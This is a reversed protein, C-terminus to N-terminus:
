RMVIPVAQRAMTGGRLRAIVEVHYDGPGIDQLVLNTQWTAERERTSGAAGTITKETRRIIREGAKIAATVTLADGDRARWFFRSALQLVDSATFTRSATPEVLLVEAIRSAEVSPKRGDLGVLLGTMALRDRGLNPITVPVHVTGTKGLARSAIGVRIIAPGPPLEVVEHVLFRRETADAGDIQLDRTVTALIRADPDVAVLKFAAEDTVRDSPGGGTPYLVETTVVTRVRGKQGPAVPAAFARMPVGFVALGRELDLDLAPKQVAPDGPPRPAVYGQRARVKLGPRKVRVEISHFKGDHVPPDPYYGLLYISGNDEVFERAAAAVSSREVAARGGTNIALTYLFDKQGRQAGIDEFGSITLLGRPDITYVAVNARRATEFVHILDQLVGTSLAAEGLYVLVRRAHASAALSRSVNELVFFSSRSNHIADLGTISKNGLGAKLRDLAKVQTALDSTFDQSLDSRSTYVVALQDSDSLSEMFSTLIQKMRHLKEADLHIHLDDIVIVFARGDPEPENTFTDRPGASEKAPLHRRGAPVSLFRFEAIQQLQGREVVEFDERNLGRVPRDSRDTVVVDVQVLDTRARFQPPQQTPFALCVVVVAVRVM